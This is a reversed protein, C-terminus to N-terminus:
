ASRSGPRSPGSGRLGVRDADPRFARWRTLRDLEDLFVRARAALRLIEREEEASAPPPFRRGLAAELGAAVRAVASRDGETVAPTHIAAAARGSMHQRAITLMFQDLAADLEIAAPRIRRWGEDRAALHAAVGAQTLAALTPEPDYAPDRSRYYFALMPFRHLKEQLSRLDGALALLRERLDAPTEDALSAAVLRTGDWSGRTAGHVRLALVNREAIGALVTLVFALSATLLAFGSLAQLVALAQLPGRTPTVDGYGLTTATVGSWYLAEAFDPPGLGPSRAFSDALHPWALLAYGVVLGVTWAVLTAAVMLPGALALLARPVPRNGRLPLSIALWASRQARRALPGEVDPHIITLFVDAVVAVVLAAGGLTAAWEWPELM